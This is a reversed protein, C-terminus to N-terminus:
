SQQITIELTEFLKQVLFNHKSLVSSLKGQEAGAQKFQENMQNFLLSIEISKSIHQNM